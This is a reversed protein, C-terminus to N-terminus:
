GEPRGGTLRAVAGLLDEVLFPKELYGDARLEAAWRGLNPRASVLMVLRTALEPTARLQTLFRAGDMVPMELDLIVLDTPQSGVLALAEHGDNAEIVTYAEDHTRDQLVEAMQERLMGDDDVILITKSRGKM